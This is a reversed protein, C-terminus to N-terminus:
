PLVLDVVVASHDSVRLDVCHFIFVRKVWPMMEKPLLIHDIMTMVDYPDEAGNENRDWLSTYRDAQRPIKGAVNVLEPGERAKDYDKLDRLVTTMTERDPDRDPVDPDYDNLDGLLIPLYGRGVIEQHIARRVVEVQAMRKANSYGDSPNSKLHLGFLGLKHSGVTLLAIASRDLSTTGQAMNGSPRTTHFTQRWTPDQRESYITRISQGDVRDPAIRSVLAVDMGTYTDHCEVHYGRYKTLGKEHLIQVLQDVGEKSTVEVLNLVDADIAEVVSAIREFHKRRAVDWRFRQLGGARVGPATLIQANFTAIRIPNEARSPCAICYGAWLAFASYFAKTAPEM